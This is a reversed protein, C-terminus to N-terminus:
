LCIGLTDNSFEKGNDSLIIEPCGHQLILSKSVAEAITTAEKDPIAVAIPWSTLQDIM